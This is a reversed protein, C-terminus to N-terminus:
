RYLHMELSEFDTAIHIHMQNEETKWEVRPFFFSSFFILNFFGSMEM